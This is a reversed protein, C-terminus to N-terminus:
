AEQSITDIPAPHRKAEEIMKMIVTWISKETEKTDELRGTIIKEAYCLTVEFANAILMQWSTGKLEGLNQEFVDCANDLGGNYAERMGRVEDTYLSSYRYRILFVTEEKHDLLYRYVKRWIAYVALEVPTNDPHLVYDSQSLIDSVQKDIYLFAERLLLEKTPFIRYMTAETFGTRGAIDKTRTNEIGVDAVTHVAGKIFVDDFARKYAM